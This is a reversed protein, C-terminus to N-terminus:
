WLGRIWPQPSSCAPFSHGHGYQTFARNISHLLGAPLEAGSICTSWGEWLQVRLLVNRQLLVGGVQLAHHLVQLWYVNSCVPNNQYCWWRKLFWSPFLCTKGFTVFQVAAIGGGPLIGLGTDLHGPFTARIHEVEPGQHLLILIERGIQRITKM